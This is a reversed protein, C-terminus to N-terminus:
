GPSNRFYLFYITQDGAASGERPVDEAISILYTASDAQGGRQAGKKLATM